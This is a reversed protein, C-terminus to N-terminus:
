DLETTVAKTSFTLYFTTGKGEISQAHIHGFNKEILEKSLILGLGSSLEGETGKRNIKGSLSFLKALTTENMGIGTDIVSIIIHDFEDKETEITVIGGKPTFKLANSLLNRLITNLMQSDAYVFDDEGPNFLVTINKAKATENMLNICNTIQVSLNVMTPNFSLNERQLQAWELLSGLLQVISDSSTYISAAIERIQQPELNELEDRVMSTLGMIGNMPSRLDHSVISFLKDKESILQKLQKNKAITERENQKRLSIDSLIVAFHDEIPQYIDAEYHLKRERSYSEFHLSNGSLAVEGYRSITKETTEPLVERISKGIVIEKKLGTIKEYKENLYEFTYDVVKGNTDKIIKHVALGLNMNNALSRFQQESEALETILDEKSQQDLLIKGILLTALPYIGIITIGMTQMAQLISKGPMALLLLFMLIHVILGMLYLQLTTTKKSTQKRRYNFYSGIIFSSIIVSVGTILGGGGIYIRYLLAPFMAILGSVPGFFFACTSIVVSRGDFIIGEAFVFPTMMGLLAAGGFLLGQFVVGYNTNSKWKALITGSFVGVAVLLALNKIVELVIM